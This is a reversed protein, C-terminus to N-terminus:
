AALKRRVLLREFGRAVRTCVTALAAISGDGIREGGNDAYLLALVRNGVTAPLVAIERVHERGLARLVRRELTREPPAGHLAEGRRVADAFLSPMAIPFLATEPRGACGESALGQVIGRHVLFCAAAECYAGALRVGLQAIECGSDSADIAAELVAPAGTRLPRGECATVKSFSRAFTEADTLEEGPGLAAIGGTM